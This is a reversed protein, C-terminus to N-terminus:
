QPVAAVKNCSGLDTRVCCPQIGPNSACCVSAEHLMFGPPRWCLRSFVVPQLWFPRKKFLLLHGAFCGLPLTAVHACGSCTRGTNHLGSGVVLRLAQEVAPGLHKACSWVCEHEQRVLEQTICSSQICLRVLLAVRESQKQGEKWISLGEGRLLGRGGAEGGSAPVGGAQICVAGM